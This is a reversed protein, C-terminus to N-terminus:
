LSARYGSLVRREVAIMRAAEEPAAHDYGVLHLIGHTCLLLIEETLSTTRPHGAREKTGVQALAREVSVIVDGLEGAPPDPLPEGDYLAFSLVDTAADLGAFDRNLARIKANAMELETTRQRM